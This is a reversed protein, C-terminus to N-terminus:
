FTGGFIGTTATVTGATLTNTSPNYTLDADVGVALDGTTASVFAPYFSANTAVVTVAVNAANTANTASGVSLTSQAVYQPAAGTSTLVYDTAGIALKALTTTGTAYIMDGAAYSALGTGGYGVGVTDANWTGATLVGVGTIGTYSGTIYASGVTGSTIQNGDISISATAAATLQGQANVTFTAVSSSSGYSAATVATNTISFITGTLTLGTGASYVQAASIQAFNINTLGFFITGTTTVVYTEGAGTAGNTVYFADGQGLSNASYPSYTDADTARTLVWNTSGDGVVTVTYVGNEFGNTQNYILVRKGVTMLVSDITLAVQAGANTLTAGVGPNILSPLTVSGNTLGTVTSGGYTLSIQYTNGGLDAVIYYPTNALLGNGTSTLFQDGIAASVGFFTIDTGNAIQIINANTGGNAYTSTLNGATNPSEVFVAEHYHIGTAAVTDVYQKTALQLNTTPDQTVTVSTLGVPALSTAGLAINTTGLTISSNTLSSNAINSLTNNNGDIVKNTL